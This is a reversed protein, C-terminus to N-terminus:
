NHWINGENKTQGAYLDTEIKTDIESYLFHSKYALIYLVQM